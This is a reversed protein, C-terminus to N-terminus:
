RVKMELVRVNCSAVGVGCTVYLKDPMIGDLRFTASATLPLGLTINSHEVMNLTTATTGIWVIGATNNFLLADLRKADPAIFQTGTISSSTVSATEVYSGKSIAARTDFTAYCPGAILLFMLGILRM